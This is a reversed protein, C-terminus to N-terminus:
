TNSKKLEALKRGREILAQKQEETMQRKHKPRISIWEVPIEGLISGDDNRHILKVLDPYDLLWKNFKNVWKPESSSFMSYKDGYIHNYTTERIDNAM